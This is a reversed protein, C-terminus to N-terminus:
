RDIEPHLPAATHWQSWQEVKRIRCRYWMEGMQGETPSIQRLNLLYLPGTPCQYERIRARPASNHACILHTLAELDGPDFLDCIWMPWVSRSREQARCRSYDVKDVVYVMSVYDIKGIDIVPPRRRIQKPPRNDILHQCSNPAISLMLQPNAIRFKAPAEIFNERTTNISPGAIVSVREKDLLFGTTLRTIDSFFGPQAIGQGHSDDAGPIEISRPRQTHCQDDPESVRQM